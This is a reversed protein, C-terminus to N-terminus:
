KHNKLGKFRFKFFSKMQNESNAQGSKHVYGTTGITGIYAYKNADISVTLSEWIEFKPM